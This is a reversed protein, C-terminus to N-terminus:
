ADRGEAREIREAAKRADHHARAACEPCVGHSFRSSAKSVIFEEVPIWRGEERTRKCEACVCVFGGLAKALLDERRRAFRMAKRFEGARAVAYRIARTLSRPKIEGKLLYDDAGANLCSYANKEDENGTLVIVPIDVAAEKMRAVSSPGAGDPLSLDLLVVHPPRERLAEVADSLRTVHRARCAPAGDCDLYELIQNADGEFDEVLLVDIEAESGQVIAPPPAGREMSVRPLKATQFWFDEIQQVVNEFARVSSPKTIYCNTGLAYSQVIDREADSSSFIIVPIHKLAADRKIESLVDRGDMQPLNLDLLILDPSPAAVHRGKHRLFELADAGNVALSIEIQLRGASFMERTLDADAPNDEVQLLRITPTM